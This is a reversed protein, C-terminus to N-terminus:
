RSKRRTKTLYALVKKVEDPTANNKLMNGRYSVVKVNGRVYGKKPDTRDLSPRDMPTGLIPCIDPIVIDSIELSFEVGKRRARGWAWGLLKAEMTKNGWQAKAAPKRCTKCVSNVGKACREHKHFESLPLMQKCKTCPRFGNPWVKTRTIEDGSKMSM